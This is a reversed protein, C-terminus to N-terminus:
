GTLMVADAEKEGQELADHLGDAVEHSVANAKGDDLTILAVQDRLEYRVPSDTMVPM